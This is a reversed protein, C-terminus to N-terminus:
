YFSEVMRKLSREQDFLELALESPQYPERTVAQAHDIAREMWLRDGLDVLFLRAKMCAPVTEIWMNYTVAVCCGCFIAEYVSRPSSDSKPISIALLTEGLVKYVDAKTPLRGLDADGEELQQAVRAKYEAQAFPYFFTLRPKQRCRGRGAFIQEIRYIPHWGRMSVIRTRGAGDQKSRSIAAVDIGFQVLHAKKGCLEKIRQQMNVSDVLVHDAALLAKNAFYRYIRSRFPRVLIESGQPTGLYRIGAAWCLVMYYMTHAHFVANAERKAIAKVYRAQLPILLAKVGNRWLNGFASQGRCLLRDINFLELVRDDRHFLRPRGESEILDTAFLIRRTGCVGKVTRYWDIAHFDRGNGVFVLSRESPHISSDAALRGQVKEDQKQM